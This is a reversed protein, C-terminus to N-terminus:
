RVTSIRKQGTGALMSDGAILNTGKKWQKISTLKKQTNRKLRFKKENKEKSEYFKKRPKKRVDNLQIDIKEKTLTSKEM